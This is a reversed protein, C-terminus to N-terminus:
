PTAGSWAASFAKATPTRRSKRASSWCAAGGRTACRTTPRAASRAHFFAALRPHDPGASKEAGPRLRRLHHADALHGPRQRGHRAPDSGPRRGRHRLAGPDQGLLFLLGPLAQHEHRGPRVGEGALGQAKMVAMVAAAARNSLLDRGAPPSGKLFVAKMTGRSANQRM